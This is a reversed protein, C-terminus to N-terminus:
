PLRGLRHPLYVLSFWALLCVVVFMLANWCIYLVSIVSRTGSGPALSKVLLVIAAIPLGFGLIIALTMGM